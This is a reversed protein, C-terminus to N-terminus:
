PIGLTQLIETANLTPPQGLQFAVKGVLHDFTRNAYHVLWVQEIMVSSVSLSFLNALAAEFNRAEAPSTFPHIHNLYGISVHLGGPSKPQDLEPYKQLYTALQQRLTKESIIVLGAPNLHVGALELTFPPQQAFFISLDHIFDALHPPLEERQLPPSPRYRGRLPAFLTTHFQTPEYWTFRGPLLAELQQQIVHVRQNIEAPFPLGAVLTLGYSPTRNKEITERIKDESLIVPSGVGQNLHAM